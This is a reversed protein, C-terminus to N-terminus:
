DYAHSGFLDTDCDPRNPAAVLPDAVGTGAQGSENQIM